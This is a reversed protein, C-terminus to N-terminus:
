KSIRLPCWKPSTKLENSEISPYGVGIAENHTCYRAVKLSTVGRMSSRSSTSLAEGEKYFECMKCKPVSM